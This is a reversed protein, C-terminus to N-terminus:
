KEVKIDGCDCQIKLTVNSDRNSGNINAKGLDVQADIYIDNIENIEVNGLDAKINSDEQISLKSIEVSGANVVIDCQNKIEQIEVEGM